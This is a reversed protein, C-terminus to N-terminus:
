WDISSPDGKQSVCFPELTKWFSKLSCAHFGQQKACSMLWAMDTDLQRDIRFTDACDSGCYMVSSFYKALRWLEEYQKIVESTRGLYDHGWGKPQLTNADDVIVLVFEAPFQAGGGDARPVM